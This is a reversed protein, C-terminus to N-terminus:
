VSAIQAWLGTGVSVLRLGQYQALEISTDGGITDSGARQVTLTGAGRNYITIEQGENVTADPLTFTLTGGSNAVAVADDDGLTTNVAYTNITSFAPVLSHLSLALDEATITKVSGSSYQYALILDAALLSSIAPYANFQPM